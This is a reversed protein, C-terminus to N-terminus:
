ESIRDIEVGSSVVGTLLLKLDEPSTAYRLADEYSIAEDEFHHLISQDFTQMGYQSKSKQIVEHLDRTRLPDLILNAVVENMRLIEVAPVREGTVSSTILRMSVVAKLISSLRVRLTQQEHSPFLSIVRNVTDVSDRTHLTSIVLHGTEAAQLAVEVTEFDRMEGVMIVDPDQRLAARLASAFNTTDSVIERQSVLAVDDEFLFEIPDEITIIHCRRSSNIHRLMSAMTTSKGNGSAGTVLILGRSADAIERLVSPLNLEEVEPVTEAVLRMVLSIAGRQQFVALRFRGIKEIGFSLDIESKRALIERQRNNLLERTLDLTEQKTIPRLDEMPRLEGLIRFRPVEGAKIHLDSAGAEVAKMLLPRLELM